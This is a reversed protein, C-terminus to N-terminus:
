GVPWRRSIVGSLALWGHQLQRVASYVVMIMLLAWVPYVIATEWWDCYYAGLLYDSRFMITRLFLSLKGQRTTPKQFRKRLEAIHASRSWPQETPTPGHVSPACSEEATLLRLAIMSLVLPHHLVHMACALARLM